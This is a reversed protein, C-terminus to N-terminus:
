LDVNTAAAVDADSFLIPNLWLMVVCAFDANNRPTPHM